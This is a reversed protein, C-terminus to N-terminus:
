TLALKDTLLLIRFITLYCCKFFQFSISMELDVVAVLTALMATRTLITIIAITTITVEALLYQSRDHKNTQENM